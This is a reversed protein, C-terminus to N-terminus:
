DLARRMFGSIGLAGFGLLSGIMVVVCIWTAIHPINTTLADRMAESVYTLPNCASAWQFWEIRSLSPWPCQTCGTFMLPTLILAFLINIREPPVLTGLVMGLSAGLLSGLVLCVALLPLGSSHFPVSGLVWIGIPFMVLAGVIARMSAFIMKEVAVLGIPLPALLRDEIEKTFSFDLVLPFSTSQLATLVVTLGVIGPFLLEAYDGRAYGLSTLIKGFVFLMFLPQLIVQAFFVPLERGTVYLDRRLIAGFTRLSGSHRRSERREPSTVTPRDVLTTM